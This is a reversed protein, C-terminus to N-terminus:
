RRPGYRGDSAEGGPGGPAAPPEAPHTPGPGATKRPKPPDASPAHPGHPTGTEQLCDNVRDPSLLSGSRAPCHNEYAPAPDAPHAATWGSPAWWHHQKLLSFGPKRQPEM